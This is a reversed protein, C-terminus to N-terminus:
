TVGLRAPHISFDPRQTYNSVRTQLNGVSRTFASAPTVRKRTLMDDHLEARHETARLLRSHDQIPFTLALFAM